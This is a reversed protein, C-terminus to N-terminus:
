YQGAYQSSHEKKFFLYVIIFLFPTALLIYFAWNTGERMWDATDIYQERSIGRTSNDPAVDIIFPYMTDGIVMIAVMFIIGMIFMSILGTYSVGFVDAM